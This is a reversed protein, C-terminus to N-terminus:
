DHRRDGWGEARAQAILEEAATLSPLRAQGRATILHGDPNKWIFRYGGQFSGDSYEFRGYQLYLGYEGFDKWTENLIVFTATKAM